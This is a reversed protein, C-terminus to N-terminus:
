QYIHVVPEKQDANRLILAEQGSVSSISVQVSVYDAFYKMVLGTVYQTFGVGEAKGYFQIPINISLQNLQGEVYFAKGIVGNYNPFYKEVDQKFNQFATVDARYDKTAETSPFLYYNENIDQWSGISNSGKSVTTYAFFNGPVVASRVEQEFLAITIPVDHLGDTARLRKAVEEALKKGERVVTERPIKQEYTPGFKETQFYYTSNLALGVVVGGLHVKDDNDM